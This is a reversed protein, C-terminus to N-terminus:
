NRSLGAVVQYFEEFVQDITLLNAARKRGLEGMRIPLEPDTILKDLKNALAKPDGPPVLFGEQGDNIQESIGCTKSAIFPLGYSMAEFIVMGFGEKISPLVFINAKQYEVALQSDNLFGVFDIKDSIGNEIVYIRLM